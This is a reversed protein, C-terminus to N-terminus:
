VKSYFSYWLGNHNLAWDMFEDRLFWLIHINMSIKRKLLKGRVSRGSEWRTLGMREFYNGM